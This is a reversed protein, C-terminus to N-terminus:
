IWTLGPAYRDIAANHEEIHGEQKNKKKTSTNFITQQVWEKEAKIDENALAIWWGKSLHNNKGNSWWYGQEKLLEKEEYPANIVGLMTEKNMNVVLENLKTKDQVLLNLTAWCDNMARHGVFPFGIAKNLDTLTLNDYGRQHWDIDRFACAFPKSRVVKQVDERAHLEFFKRDFKSNYCIIFDSNQLFKLVLDWDIQQGAVLENDIKTIRTIEPPIPCKPDNLAHYHGVIEDVGQETSFAFSLLGIELIDCEKSLGLTEFDVITAVRRTTSVSSEPAFFRNLHLRSAASTTKLKKVPPENEERGPAETSLSPELLACPIKELILNEITPYDEIQKKPRKKQSLVEEVRPGDTIKEVSSPAKQNLLAFSIGTAQALDTAKRFLPHTEFVAVNLTFQVCRDLLGLHLKYHVTEILESYHLMDFISLISILTEPQNLAFWKAMRELVMMETNVWKSAAGLNDALQPNDQEPTLSFAINHLWEPRYQNEPTARLNASYARQLLHRMEPTLQEQMADFFIKYVQTASLSKEPTPTQQTKIETSNSDQAQESLPTQHPATALEASTEAASSEGMVTNQTVGRQYHADRYRVDAPNITLLHGGKTKKPEQTSANNREFVPPVHHDGFDPEDDSDEEESFYAITAPTTQNIVIDHQRRAYFKKGNPGLARYHIEDHRQISEINTLQSFKIRETTTETPLEFQQAILQGSEDHSIVAHGVHRSSMEYRLHENEALYYLDDRTFDHTSKRDAMDTMNPRTYKKSRIRSRQEIVTKPTESDADNM